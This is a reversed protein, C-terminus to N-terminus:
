MHDSWSIFGALWCWPRWSLKKCYHQSPLVMQTSERATGPVLTPMQVIASGSLLAQALVTKRIVFSISRHSSSICVSTCSIRQALQGRCHGLLSLCFVTGQLLDLSLILCLKLIVKIVIPLLLYTNSCGQIEKKRKLCLCQWKQSKQFSLFTFLFYNELNGPKNM